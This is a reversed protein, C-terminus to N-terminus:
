QPMLANLALSQGQAAAPSEDKSVARLRDDARM